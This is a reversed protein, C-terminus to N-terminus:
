IYFMVWPIVAMCLLISFSQALNTTNNVLPSNGRYMLFLISLGAMLVVVSIVLTLRWFGRELNAMYERAVLFACVYRTCYLTNKNVFIHYHPIRGYFLRCRLGCCHGSLTSLMICFLSHYYAVYSHRTFLLGVM